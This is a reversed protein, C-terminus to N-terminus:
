KRRLNYFTFTGTNLLLGRDDTLRFDVVTINRGPKITQGECLIFETNRGAKLYQITGNVTTVDYGYTGAAIGCVTDAVVYLAGGHIDGYPNTIKQQFPIKARAFGETVELLEIQFMEAFPIKDLLEQGEKVLMSSRRPSYSEVDVICWEIM